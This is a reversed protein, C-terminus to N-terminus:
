ITKFHSYGQYFSYLKLMESIGYDLKKTTQYRLSKIRTFSVTFNREDLDPLSSDIIKFDLQKQIAGAIELKTFNLSEDGVNFIQGRMDNRNLAMLYAEIADSIHIFTRKSNGDFVILVRENLAKYTFDNVMLDSRMRPSVGFVTAFRLAISNGRQMIIKEAEYKTRAYISGPEVPVSECCENKNTGYLSTTSAYILLQSDSMLSCLRQSAFVNITEASHPNAACAPMGSIGALHFIADFGSVFKQDINRVDMKVVRLLPDSVLHLVSEYGYMFNDLITVEYGLNLLAQSLLVGKYGAGGTVLIKM